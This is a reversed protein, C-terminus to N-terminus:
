QTSRVSLQGHGDDPTCSHPAELLIKLLEQLMVDPGCAEQASSASHIDALINYPHALDANHAVM